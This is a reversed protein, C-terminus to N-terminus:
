RKKEEVKETKSTTKKGRSRLIVNERKKDGLTLDIIQVNSARIPIVKETGDPKKITIKEVGITGGKLNIEVVKGSKGKNKGRMIKVKDDKRVPLNRKGHRKRLDKSLSATLIKRRKHLPMEFLRKHQKRPKKSKKNM